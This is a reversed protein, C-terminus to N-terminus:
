ELCIVEEGQMPETSFRSEGPGGLGKLYFGSWDREALEVHEERDLYIIEQIMKGEVSYRKVLRQITNAKDLERFSAEAYGNDDLKSEESEFYEQFISIDDNKLSLYLFSPKEDPLYFYVQTTKLEVEAFYDEWIRIYRNNRTDIIFYRQSTADEPIEKRYQEYLAKYTYIREKFRKIQEQSAEFFEVNKFGM